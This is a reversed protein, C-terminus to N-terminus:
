LGNLLIFTDDIDEIFSKYNLKYKIFSKYNINIQIKYKKIKIRINKINYIYKINM